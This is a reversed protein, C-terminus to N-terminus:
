TGSWPRRTSDPWSHWAAERSAASERQYAARDTLLEEVAAFWPAPDNEPVVPKPMGLEDFVPQYREITKVPIM